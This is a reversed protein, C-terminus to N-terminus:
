HSIFNVREIVFCDGCAGDVSIQARGSGSVQMSVNTSITTLIRSTRLDDVVVTVASDPSDDIRRIRIVLTMMTERRRLKDEWIIEVEPGSPFIGSTDSKRIPGNTDVYLGGCDECYSEKKSASEPLQWIDVFLSEREPSGGQFWPIRIVLKANIESFVLSTSVSYWPLGPHLTIGSTATVIHTVGLNSLYDVFHSAGFQAHYNLNRGASETGVINEFGIVRGTFDLIRSASQQHLEESVRTFVLSDPDIRARFDTGVLDVLMLPILLVPHLLLRWGRQTLRRNRDHLSQLGSIGLIVAVPGWVLVARYPARFRPITNPIWGSPLYIVTGFVRLSQPAMSMVLFVLFIVAMWRSLRSRLCRVVEYTLLLLMIAGIWYSSREAAVVEGFFFRVTDAMVHDEPIVFLGNLPVFFSAGLQLLSNPQGLGQSLQASMILSRTTLHTVWLGLILGVCVLVFRRADLAQHMASLVLIVVITASFVAFYYDTLVSLILGVSIVFLGTRDNYKLWYVFGYVVTLVVWAHALTAHNASIALTQPLLQALVGASVAFAERLGILRGLHYTLFGTLAAGGILWTCIVATPSLIRGAFDAFSYLGLQSWAALTPIFAEGSPAAHALTEGFAGIRMRSAAARAALGWLDSGYGGVWATGGQKFM